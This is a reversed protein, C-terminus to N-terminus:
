AARGDEEDFFSGYIADICAFSGPQIREPDISRELREEIWLILDLVHVSKLIGQSVLPTANEIEGAAVRGNTLALWERLEQKTSTANM